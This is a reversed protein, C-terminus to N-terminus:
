WGVPGRRTVIGLENQVKATWLDYELNGWGMHERIRIFPERFALIALEIISYLVSGRLQWILLIRGDPQEVPVMFNM